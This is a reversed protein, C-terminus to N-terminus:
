STPSLSWRVPYVTPNLDVEPPIMSHLSGVVHNRYPGISGPVMAYLDEPAMKSTCYLIIGRSKRGRKEPM